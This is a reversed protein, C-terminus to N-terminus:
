DSENRNLWVPFDLPSLCASFCPVVQPECPWLFKRPGVSESRPLIPSGCINSEKTLSSFVWVQGLHCVFQLCVWSLPMCRGAWGRGQTTLNAAFHRSSLEAGWIRQPFREMPWGLQFHVPSPFTTWGLQPSGKGWTDLIYHTGLLYTNLPQICSHSCPLDICWCKPKWALWM